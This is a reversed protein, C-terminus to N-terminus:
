PTRFPERHDDGNELGLFNLLNDEDRSVPLYRCGRSEHDALIPHHDARLGEIAFNVGGDIMKKNALRVLRRAQSPTM